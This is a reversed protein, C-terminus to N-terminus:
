QIENTKDIGKKLEDLRKQNIDFGLVEM